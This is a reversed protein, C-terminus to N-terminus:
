GLLYTSPTSVIDPSTQGTITDVGDVYRNPHGPLKFQSHWHKNADPTAGANYAGRYDYQHRPDDPNPNLGLKSSWGKYWKQFDSENFLTSEVGVNEPRGTEMTLAEYVFDTIPKGKVPKVHGLAEDLFSAKKNGLAEELFGM